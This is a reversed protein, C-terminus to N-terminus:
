CFIGFREDMRELYATVAERFEDGAADLRDFQEERYLKDLFGFPDSESRRAAEVVARAGVMVLSKLKMTRFNPSHETRGLVDLARSVANVLNERASPAPRSSQKHM